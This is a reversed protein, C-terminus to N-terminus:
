KKLRFFSNPGGTGVREIVGKDVLRQVDYRVTRESIGPMTQLADKIHCLTRKALLKMLIDNREKFSIVAEFRPNIASKEQTKRPQGGQAQRLVAPSKDDVVKSPWGQRVIEKPQKGSKEGETTEPRLRAPNDNQKSTPAYFIEKKDSVATSEVEAVPEPNPKSFQISNPKGTEQESSASSVQGSSASPNGSKEGERVEPKLPAPDKIPQAKNISESISKIIESIRMPPRSFAEEINPAAEPNKASALMRVKCDNLELIASRLNGIERLLVSSNVKNVDKTQGSLRVIEELGDLTALDKAVLYDVARDELAQKIKPRTAHEAVRFVAWVVEFSRQIFFEQSFM